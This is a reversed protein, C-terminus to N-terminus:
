RRGHCVNVLYALTTKVDAVLIINQWCRNLLKSIILKSFLKSIILKKLFNQIVPRRKLTDNFIEILNIFKKNVM